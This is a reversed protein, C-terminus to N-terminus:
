GKQCWYQHIEKFDEENASTEEEEKQKAAVSSESVEPRIECSCRIVQRAESPQGSESHTFTTQFSPTARGQATQSYETKQHIRELEDVNVFELRQAVSNTPSHNLRVRYTYNKKELAYNYADVYHPLEEETALFATKLLFKQTLKLPDKPDALSLKLAIWKRDKYYQSNIYDFFSM